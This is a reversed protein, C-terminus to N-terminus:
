AEALKAFITRARDYNMLTQVLALLNEEYKELQKCTELDFAAGCRSCFTSTPGNVMECRPCKQPALVPETYENKKLGYIRLMADDIDKGSLHVYTRPMDSGHVWGLHSELQSETFHQALDTSRSHRFLHLYVRKKIGAKTATSKILKDYASYKMPQGAGGGRILPWLYAEPNEKEPHMDMWAALYPVSFIIRVRRTGTKGDVRLFAGYQDYIVNKLQLSGM